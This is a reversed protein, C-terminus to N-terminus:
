FMSSLHPHRAAALRLVGAGELIAIADKGPFSKLFFITEDIRRNVLGPVVHWSEHGKKGAHIWMNLTKVAWSWDPPTRSLAKWIDSGSVEAGAGANFIWSALADYQNQTIWNLGLGAIKENLLDEAPQLDDIFLRQALDEDIVDGSFSEGPRILHGYGITANGFSGEDLYASARFGGELAKIFSRGETSVTDPVTNSDPEM